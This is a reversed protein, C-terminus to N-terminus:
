NDPCCARSRRKGIVSLGSPPKKKFTLDHPDLFRWLATRHGLIRQKHMAALELAQRIRM